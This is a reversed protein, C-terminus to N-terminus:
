CTGTSCFEVDKALNIPGMPWPITTGAATSVGAEKAAFSWDGYLAQVSLGPAGSWNTDTVVGGYHERDMTRYIVAMYPQFGMANIQADTYNLFWRAGEPPRQGAGTNGACASSSNTNAGDSATAPYVFTTDACLASAALAYGITGHTPDAEGHLVAVPDIAGLSTALNTATSNSCGTGDGSFLCFGLSGVSWTGSAPLSTGTLWGDMEGTPTDWIAHQDSSQQIALTAPVSIKEGNFSDCSTASWAVKNCAITLSVNTTAIPNVIYATNDLQKFPPFDSHGAQFLLAAWASSNAAVAPNAPLPQYFVSSAFQGVAPPLTPATTPAPTPAQTPAMTPTSTPQPTPKGFEVVVPDIALSTTFSTGTLPTKIMSGDPQFAWYAVPVYGQESVTVPVPANTIPTQTQWKFDLMERALAVLVTGDRKAAVLHTIPANAPYTISPTPIHPVFAPGPDKLLGLYNNVATFQPKPSGDPNVLGTAGFVVDSPMDAFQYFNVRQVGQSPLFILERVDYAAIYRDPISCGRGYLTNDQTPTRRSGWGTETVWVVPSVQRAAALATAWSTYTKTLINDGCTNFHLNSADVYQSQNGLKPEDSWTVLSPAAIPKGYPRVLPSEQKICATLVQQWNANGGDYENGCLEFSDYKPSAKVKAAVTAATEGSTGLGVSMPFFTGAGGDRVRAFNSSLLLAKVAPVTTYPTGSYNFHSDAGVMNALYDAQFM